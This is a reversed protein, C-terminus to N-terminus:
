AVRQGLGRQSAGPLWLVAADILEDEVQALLQRHVLAAAHQDLADAARAVPEARRFAGVHVGHSLARGCGPSPRLFDYSLRWPPNSWGNADAPPRFRCLQRHPNVQNPWPQRAANTREATHGGACAVPPGAVLATLHHRPAVALM